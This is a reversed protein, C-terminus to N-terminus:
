KHEQITDSSLILRKESGFISTKGLVYFEREKTSFGNQIKQAIQEKTANILNYEKVENAKNSPQIIGNQKQFEAVENISKVKYRDSKM